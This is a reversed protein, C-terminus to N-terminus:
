GGFDVTISRDDPEPAYVADMLREPYRKIEFEASWRDLLSEFLEDEKQGRIRAGVTVRVDELAPLESPEITLVRVLAWRGDELETPESTQGEEDMSYVIHRIRSNATPTMKGVKGKAERVDSPVCYSEVVAEWSAGGALDIQASLCEAETETILALVDRLEPKRFDEKREEWYAEIEEGTVKVQDRVFEENLRNVMLQERRTRYEAEVSADKGYGRDIAVRDMLERIAIEKLGRRMGGPRAERRPRGFLSSADFFEKYRALTWVQDAFSMLVKDYHSSDIDLPELSEKDPYPPTLPVDEPLAEFAIKLAEDDIVLEYEEFVENVFDTVALQEKQGRVSEVVKDRISDLPQVREFTIDDVRIVFYGYPSEIPQSIGGVPLSFVVREFDDAVTGYVIPMTYNDNRGPAGAEFREAVTRWAEGGEVLARAELAEPEFDFLMYSTMLKRPLMEYYNQIEEESIESASQSIENRMNTVATLNAIRNAQDHISGDEDMGFELAKLVMVEKKIMTELLEERGSQLAIDEPLEDPPITNMKSEFYSLTIVNEGVTAVPVESKDKKKACGALGVLSISAALIALATLRFLVPRSALM